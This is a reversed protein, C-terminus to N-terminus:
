ERMALRVIMGIVVWIGVEADWRSSYEGHIYLTLTEITNDVSKTYDSTVLCQVTRLRYESALALTRGPNKDTWTVDQYASHDLPQQHFACTAVFVVTDIRMLFRYSVRGSLRNM